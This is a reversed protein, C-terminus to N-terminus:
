RLQSSLLILQIGENRTEINDRFAGTTISTLMGAGPGTKVGRFAMCSHVARMVLLIGKPRVIKNIYSVVDKALREQLQPRKSYYNIVRAVKSAGILDEDPIYACWALGSFSVLHHSCTSTYPINDLLIIEDYGENPFMSLKPPEQILSSFTEECFMRAVRNPTDILNPDSLDLGLGESLMREISQRVVLQDM